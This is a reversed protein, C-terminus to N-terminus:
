YIILYIILIKMKPYLIWKVKFFLRKLSSGVSYFESVARQCCLCTMKKINGFINKHDKYLVCINRDTTHSNETHQLACQACVTAQRHKCLYHTRAHKHTKNHQSTYHSCHFPHSSAPLCRQESLCLALLNNTKQLAIRYNKQSRIVNHKGFLIIIFSSFDFLSIKHHTRLLPIIQICKSDGPQDGDRGSLMRSGNLHRVRM